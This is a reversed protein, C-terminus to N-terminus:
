NGCNWELERLKEYLEIEEPTPSTPVQINFRIFLAGDKVGKKNMKIKATSSTGKPIKANLTDGFFDFKIESGLVLDSPTVDITTYLDNEIREYRKDPTVTIAAIIDGNEGGNSGANGLGTMKVFQGDEVGAPIKIIVKKVDPVTTQGKCMTCPTDIVLGTGDCINCATLKVAEDNMFSVRKVARVVGKGKCTGCQKQKSAGTGDCLPCRKRKHVEVTKDVGKISEEFTLTFNVRIDHGKSAGKRRSAKHFNKATDAKGFAEGWRKYDYSFSMKNDYSKRKGDDSLTQYAEGIEKFVDEKDPNKDPHYKVALKKYAKKIDATSATREVGLIRYYDKM